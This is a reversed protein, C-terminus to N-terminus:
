KINLQAFNSSEVTEFIYWQANSPNEILQGTTTDHLVPVASPNGEGDKANQPTDDGAVKVKYGEARIRTDWVNIDPVDPAKKRRISVTVTQRWYVKNSDPDLFYKLQVSDILCRGAAYGEFPDNNVTGVADQLAQNRQDVNKGYTVQLDYVNATIPPDFQEGNVTCIPDGLIDVDIPEQSKVSSWEEMYPERERKEPRKDDPLEEPEPLPAGPPPTEYTVIAVFHIPSRDVRRIQHEGTCRLNPNDPHPSYANPLPAEAIIRSSSYGAVDTVIDWEETQRDEFAQTEGKKRDVSDGSNRKTCSAIAM